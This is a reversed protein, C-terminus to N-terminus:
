KFKIYNFDYLQFEKSRVAKKNGLLKHIQEHQQM